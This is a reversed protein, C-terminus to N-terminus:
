VGEGSAADAYLVADEHLRMATAPVLETIEGHVTKTVADKKTAAPVTCVLYKGKMLAPVTLTLAHTPVECLSGFCGDHVQQERCVEDLKAVKVLVSDDFKAVGPDNFAVHGNEGIGLCVLDVPYAELLAGYRRCEEGAERNGDLRYVKKFPVKGFIHEELFNGFAQPADAPLGIYEDMHFANVRKWDIGEAACLGALVENQSPAAAFIVNVEDKEALLKRLLAAARESAARGMEERTAYVEVRLKDATATKIAGM